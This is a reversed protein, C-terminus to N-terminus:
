DTREAKVIESQFLQLYAKAVAAPTHAALHASRGARFKDLMLPTSLLMQVRDALAEVDGNPFTLGCPGIAEPLGGGASGLVVCGCACGELAVIGFPEQWLSPVLLIQHANLITALEAGTQVGLFTVQDDLKLEQVLRQLPKEEPGGGVVTLRCQRGRSNILALAQLAIHVGKDYILRGVVVIEGDRKVSPLRRFIAADYPNGIVRSPSPIDGAIADSVSVV